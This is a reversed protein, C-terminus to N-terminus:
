PKTRGPGPLSRPARANVSNMASAVGTEVVAHIADVARAIVNDLAAREVAEFDSLVWDTIAGRSGAVPRGLGIRVRVIQPTGLRGIVSRLGNHGAAGGGVKLRVEGFGLDIEDYAVVIHEAEIKLFAAAAQVSDGSLNMYTLPQLLTVRAGWADGKTVRGSWRQRWAPAGIRARLAEVTMFGINHRHGAHETGPNGLGVILWTM